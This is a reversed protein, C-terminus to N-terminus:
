MGLSARLIGPPHPEWIELCGACSNPLTTLGVCRGVNGGMTRGSPNHLYFIGIFGDPISGAVESKYSLAEVLQAVAMKTNSVYVFIQRSFVFKTLVSCYYQFKV